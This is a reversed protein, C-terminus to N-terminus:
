RSEALKRSGSVAKDAASQLEPTILSGPFPITPLILMELSLETTADDIRKIHWTADLREVNGNLMHAKLIRTGNVEAVPEFRVVAWIKGAGRLIKVQLYVDTKKGAKGVVRSKDFNKNLKDYHNFDSVIQTVVDIPAAIRIRAAGAKIDSYPTVVSYRQAKAPAGTDASAPLAGVCAIAAVLLTSLLPHRNM